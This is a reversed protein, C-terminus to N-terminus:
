RLSTTRRLITLKRAGSLGLAQYEEMREPLKLSHPTTVPVSVRARDCLHLLRVTMVSESRFRRLDLM